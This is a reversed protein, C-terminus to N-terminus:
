QIYGLAKLQRKTDDGLEVQAGPEFKTGPRWLLVYPPEPRTSPEGASPSSRGGRQKFPMADPQVLDGGLYTIERAPKGDIAFDFGVPVMGPATNFALTVLGGLELNELRIANNDAQVVPLRDGDILHGDRDLFTHMTFKGNIPRDPVTVSIDFIHSDRGGAVELYWTDSLSLLTKIILENFLGETESDEGIMNDHEGPDQALNFLMREETITDYIFKWPFATICKKETGYLMSESYAFQAPLLSAGGTSPEGEGSILPMLSAGELHTWPRIGLVDLITPVVDLIRVQREIRTNEPLRGPLSFMLPVKILEDYHTHGHEFGKHDFFEEGHDSLFVVLTNKALGREELGELLDGVAKDTFLIEGDYLARIHKWEAQAHPDGESHLINQMKFYDERAFVSGISGTYDPDFITDYPAPPEYDLHPDFYHVFMFFPNESNEDIWRLADMTTRDARRRNWRRTTSYFEFGRDVGLEPALAPANIVAGTSYGKKLLMMPLPPFSTGMRTGYSGAGHSHLDGAGHQTPYLSTLMTAFSPLTWPSQSVADEFLVSRGALADINPSTPREYGYCGLHDRRLTDVGIIMVNLKQEEFGCSVVLCALIVATWRALSRM